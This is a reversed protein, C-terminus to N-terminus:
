AGKKSHMARVRMQRQSQSHQIWGLKFAVEEPRDGMKIIIRDYPSHIEIGERVLGMLLSLTDALDESSNDLLIVCPKGIRGSDLASLLRKLATKNGQFGSSGFDPIGREDLTLGMESCYRQSDRLRSKQSPSAAQESTSLKLLSYAHMPTTTQRAIPGQTNVNAPNIDAPRRQGDRSSGQRLSSDCM